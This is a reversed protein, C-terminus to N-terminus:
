RGDQKGEAAFAMVQAMAEDLTAGRAVGNMKVGKWCQPSNCVHFSISCCQNPFLVSLEALAQEVTLPAVAPDFSMSAPVLPGERDDGGEVGLSEATAQAVVDKHIAADRPQSCVTNDELPGPIKV